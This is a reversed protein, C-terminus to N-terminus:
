EGNKTPDERYSADSATPKLVEDQPTARIVNEDEHSGDGAATTGSYLKRYAGYGHLKDMDEEMTRIPLVPAEDEGAAPTEGGTNQQDAVPTPIFQPAEENPTPAVSRPTDTGNIAAYTATMGAVMGEPLGDCIAAIVTDADTADMGCETVLFRVLGERDLIFLLFLTIGNEFVVTTDEDFGLPGGFLKATQTAYDSLVFERYEPSLQQIRNQIIPDVM